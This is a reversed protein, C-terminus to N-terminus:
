RVGPVNELIWQIKGGAFYTAPPLGAKERIVDGRGDRDLAAAIAPLLGATRNDQWVIARHAPKGTHRDWVVATERQNTIGLA